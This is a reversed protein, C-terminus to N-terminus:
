IYVKALRTIERTVEILCFVGRGSMVLKFNVAVVVVVFNVNGNNNIVRGCVIHIRLSALLSIVIIIIITTVAVAARSLRTTTM